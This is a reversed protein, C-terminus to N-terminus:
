RTYCMNQYNNKYIQDFELNGVDVPKVATFIGMKPQNNKRSILWSINNQHLLFINYRLQYVPSILELSCKNLLLHHVGCTICNSISLLM